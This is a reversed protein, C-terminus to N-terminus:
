FKLQVMKNIFIDLYRHVLDKLEFQNANKMLSLTFEDTQHTFEIEDTYIWKILETAVTRDM